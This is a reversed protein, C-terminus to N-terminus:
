ATEKNTTPLQGVVTLRDRDSENRDVWHWAGIPFRVVKGRETEVTVVSGDPNELRLPIPHDEPFFIVSDWDHQHRHVSKNPRLIIHFTRVFAGLGLLEDPQPGVCAIHADSKWNEIVDPKHQWGVIDRVRQAIDECERDTVDARYSMYAIEVM